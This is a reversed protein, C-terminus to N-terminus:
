KLENLWSKWSFVGFSVVCKSSCGGCWGKIGNEWLSKGM